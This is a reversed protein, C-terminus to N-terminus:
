ELTSVLPKQSELFLLVQESSSMLSRYDSPQHCEVWARLEWDVFYAAMNSFRKSSAVFCLKLSLNDGDQEGQDMGTVCVKLNNTSNGSRSASREKCPFSKYKNRQISKQISLISAILHILLRFVRTFISM